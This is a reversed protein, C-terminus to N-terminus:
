RPTLHGEAVLAQLIPHLDRIDARLEGALDIVDVRSAGRQQRARLATVVEDRTVTRPM